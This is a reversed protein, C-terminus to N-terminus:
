RLGRTECIQEDARNLWCWKGDGVYYDSYRLIVRPREGAKIRRGYEAIEEPTAEWDAPPDPAEAHQVSAPRHATRNTVKLAIGGFFLGLVLCVSAARKM